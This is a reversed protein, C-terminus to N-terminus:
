NDFFNLIKESPYNIQNLNANIMEHHKYSSVLIGDHTYSDVEEISIIPLNVIINGKKTLDDDVVALVKLPLTNDDNMVQLM